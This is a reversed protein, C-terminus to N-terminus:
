ATGSGAERKGSGAASLPRRVFYFNFAVYIQCIAVLHPLYTGKKKEKKTHSKKTHRKHANRLLPLEFVGNFVKPPFDMDFVETRFLQPFFVKKRDDKGKSKKKVANKATERCSSGLFVV